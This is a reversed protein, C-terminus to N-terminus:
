LFFYVGFKGYEDMLHKEGWTRMLDNDMLIGISAFALFAFIIKTVLKLEINYHLHKERNCIIKFIM